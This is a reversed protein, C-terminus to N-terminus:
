PEVLPPLLDWAREGLLEHAVAREWAEEAHELCYPDGEFVCEAAETCHPRYCLTSGWVVPQRFWNM